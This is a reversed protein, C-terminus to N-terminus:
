KVMERPDFTARISTIKGDEVHIWSATPCPPAVQTHLEFWTVVDPGDVFVKKVDVDTVIRSMGEVGKRCEDGDAATGLPGEFTADDALVSRLTDFDKAQWSAYYTAAAERPDM